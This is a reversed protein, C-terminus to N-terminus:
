PPSPKARCGELRALLEAEFAARPGRGAYLLRYRAAADQAALLAADSDPYEPPSLDEQAAICPVPVPVRVEVTRVVPEPAAVSACGTLLLGLGAFMAKM